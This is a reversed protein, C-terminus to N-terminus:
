IQEGKYEVLKKNLLVFAKEFKIGRRVIEAYIDKARWQTNIVIVEHPVELLYEPPRIEQGTGPVFFGCKKHDSDIVTPFDDANVDLGNLFSTGKGTGGWFAIKKGSKKLEYLKKLVNEKQKLIGEHYKAASARIKKVRKNVRPVSLAVVVEDGYGTKCELVKYGALQFMNKFSYDTFNSVHEFLYDNIRTHKIAKNICPVEGLFVPYVEHINCWYAIEKVFNKPSDLHELVHRCILFDPKFKPLDRDAIFYDSIAEVGGSAANSAEIGPEFGVCRATPFKEKISKLYHADGCGIEIITKGALGFKKNLQDIQEDIFVKWGTGKNFMLNSGEAYPIKSYDFETNYIHGCDGCAEFNMPFRMVSKAEASSKPLYMVSLPHEGPNYIPYTISSGCAICNNKKEAM